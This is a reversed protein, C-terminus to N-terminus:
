RNNRVAEIYSQLDDAASRWHYCVSVAYGVGRAYAVFETQEPSLTGGQQDIIKAKRVGEKETKPRKLEIYLGAYVLQMYSAPETGYARLPLPLFCDLVGKKVGEVKLKGATIADRPGGNPIAHFWKLEPVPRAMNSNAGGEVFQALAGTEYTREDWALDFGFREAINCWAFLARQHSHEANVSALQEPSM